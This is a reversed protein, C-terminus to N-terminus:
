AIAGNELIAIIKRSQEYIDQETWVHGDDPENSFLKLIEHKAKESNKANYFWAAYKNNLDYRTITM